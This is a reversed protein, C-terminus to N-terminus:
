GVKWNDASQREWDGEVAGQVEADTRDWKDYADQLRKGFNHGYQVKDFDHKKLLSLYAKFADEVAQQVNEFEKPNVAGARGYPNATKNLGTLIAKREDSGVPLSSALRILSKRDSSTLSDSM